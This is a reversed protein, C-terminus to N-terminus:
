LIDLILDELVHYLASEMDGLMSHFRSNNNKLDYFNYNEMLVLSFLISDRM